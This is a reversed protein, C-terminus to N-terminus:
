FPKLVRLPFLMHEIRVCINGIEVMLFRGHEETMIDTYGGFEVEMGGDENTAFAMYVFIADGGTYVASTDDCDHGESESTDDHATHKKHFEDLSVLEQERFSKLQVGSVTFIGCDRGEPSTYKGRTFLSVHRFRMSKNPEPTNWIRLSMNEDVEQLMQSVVPARHMTSFDDSNNSIAWMADVLQQVSHQPHHFTKKLQYRIRKRQVADDWVFQVSTTWDFLRMVTADRSRDGALYGSQHAYVQALTRNAIEWCEDRRFPVFYFPEDHELFRVWKGDPHELKWAAREKPADESNTEIDAEYAERAAQRLKHFAALRQRLMENEHHLREKQTLVGVYNDVARRHSLNHAMTANPHASRPDDGRAATAGADGDCIHERLMVQLRAALRQEETKMDEFSMKKNRRYRIMNERHRRRRLLAKAAQEAVIAEASGSDVLDRVLESDVLLGRSDEGREENEDVDIAGAFASM